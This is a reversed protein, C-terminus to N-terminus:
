EHPADEKWELISSIGQSRATEGDLWTEAAEPDKIKWDKMLAAWVPQVAKKDIKESRSLQEARFDAVAAFHGAKEWAPAQEELWQGAGQPDFVLWKGYSESWWAGGPPIHHDAAWRMAAAPQGQFGDELVHEVLGPRDHKQAEAVAADFDRYAWDRFLMFYAWDRDKMDPLEKLAKLMANRQGEDKAAAVCYWGLLDRNKDPFLKLNEFVNEATWTAVLMDRGIYSFDKHDKVARYAANPDMRMWASLVSQLLADRRQIAVQDPPGPLKSVDALAAAPDSETWHFFLASEIEALRDAGASEGSTHSLTERLLTLTGPIKDPPIRSVVKWIDTERSDPSLLSRFEDFPEPHARPPTQSRETRRAATQGQEVSPEGPKTMNGVAFGAAASLGILILAQVTKRGNPM